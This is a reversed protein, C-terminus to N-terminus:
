ASTQRLERQVRKLRRVQYLHHHLHVSLFKLAHLLNMWGGRPHLFVGLTPTYSTLSGFFAAFTERTKDWREVLAAFQVDTEPLIFPTAAPVKVRIPLRMVARVVFTGYRDRLNIRQSGGLNKRFSLLVGREVKELHDLVDLASWSQAQPRFSLQEPSWTALEELLDAKQRELRQVARQLRSNM